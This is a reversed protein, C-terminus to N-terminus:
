LGMPCIVATNCAQIPKNSLGVKVRHAAVPEQLETLLVLLCSWSSGQHLQSKLKLHRTTMERTALVLPLLRSEDEQADTTPM